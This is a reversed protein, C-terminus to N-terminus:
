TGADALRKLELVTEEDDCAEQIKRTFMAIFGPAALGRKQLRLDQLFSNIDYWDDDTLAKRQASTATRDWRTMDGNFSWYLQLKRLTIM